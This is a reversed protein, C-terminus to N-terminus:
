LLLMELHFIFSLYLTPYILVSLFNCEKTKADASRIKYKFITNDAAGAASRLTSRGCDNHSPYSGASFCLMWSNITVLNHPGIVATSVPINIHVVEGGMLFSPYRAISCETIIHVTIFYHPHIPTGSVGIDVHSSETLVEWNSNEICEWSGSICWSIVNVSLLVPDGVERFHLKPSPVYEVWFFVTCLYLLTPFYM